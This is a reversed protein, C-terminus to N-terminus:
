RHSLECVLWKALTVLDHHPTCHHAQAPGAPVVLSGMVLAMVVIGKRM